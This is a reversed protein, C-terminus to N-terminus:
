ALYIQSAAALIPPNIGIDGNNIYLFTLNPYIAEENKRFGKSYFLSLKSCALTTKLNSFFLAISQWIIGFSLNLM